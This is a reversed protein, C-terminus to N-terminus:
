IGNKSSYLENKRAPLLLGKKKKKNEGHLVYNQQKSEDTVTKELYEELRMMLCHLHQRMKEMWRGFFRVCFCLLTRRHIARKVSEGTGRVLFSLRVSAQHVVAVGLPSSFLSNQRKGDNRGRTPSSFGALFGSFRSPLPARYM